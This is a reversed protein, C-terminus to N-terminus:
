LGNEQLTTKLWGYCSIVSDRVGGPYAAVLCVECIRPDSVGRQTWFPISLVQIYFCAKEISLQGTCVHLDLSQKHATCVQSPTERKGKAGPLLTPFPGEILSAKDESARPRVNRFHPLLKFAASIFRLISFSSAFVAFSGADDGKRAAELTAALSAIRCGAGLRQRKKTM